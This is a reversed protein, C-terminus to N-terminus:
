LFGLFKALIRLTILTEQYQEILVESVGTESMDLGVSDELKSIGSGWRSGEGM